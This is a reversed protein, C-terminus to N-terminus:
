NNNTPCFGYEFEPSFKISAIWINFIASIRNYIVFNSLGCSAFLYAVAMKETMKTIKRRAFGMNLSSRSNSRLLRYINNLLFGISIVLNSHSCCALHYAAAMKKKAMKTITRRVFGM